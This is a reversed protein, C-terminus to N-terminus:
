GVSFWPHRRHSRDVAAGRQEAISLLGDRNTLAFVLLAAAPDKIRLRIGRPGVSELRELTPWELSLTPIFSMWKLTPELRVGDDYALLRALPWSANLGGLESPLRIAAVGQWLPPATIHAARTPLAAFKRALPQAKQWRPLIVVWAIVVWTMAVVWFLLFWAVGQSRVLFALAVAVAAVPGSLVLWKRPM